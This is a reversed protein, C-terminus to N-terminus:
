KQSRNAVQKDYHIITDVIGIEVRRNKARAVKTKANDVPNSKGFGQTTILEDPIGANVLYDRVSKARRESLDQNYEQTGIDDTHGDVFLRYGESALLVGAVRSLLEKNEARLTAKDFDFHFAEDSLAMVMGSPTRRTPAIRSLVEQMRNLERERRERIDALQERTQQTEVRASEAEELASQRASEAEQRATALESAHQEAESAREETAQLNEHAQELNQHAQELNERSKDLEQAYRYKEQNALAARQEAQEARQETNQLRTELNQLRNGLYWLAAIALLLALVAAIPFLRDSRTPPRPTAM